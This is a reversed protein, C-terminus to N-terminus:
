TAGRTMGHLNRRFLAFLRAWVREAAAKDYCYREPFTFGHEAGRHLEVRYRGGRAALAREVTQAHEAPAVPDNDAWAFYSEGTTRALLLHPSDTRDSVLRGGHLSAFAAIQGPYAAAAGIAHRGGMCYGVAAVPLSAGQDLAAYDLLVGGDRTTMSVDLIANLEMMKPDLVGQALPRPDFSPCGWRYFLDPLMAYYGASAYRRAMDRLEERIGLADMFILIVPFPGDEDPHVIFVPMEGDETALRVSTEIMAGYEGDSARFDPKVM